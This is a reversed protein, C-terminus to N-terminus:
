QRRFLPRDTRELRSADQEERGSTHDLWWARLFGYNEPKHAYFEEINSGKKTMSKKSTIILIRNFQTLNAELHDKYSDEPITGRAGSQSGVVFNNLQQATWVLGPVLSLVDNDLELYYFRPDMAVYFGVLHSSGREM